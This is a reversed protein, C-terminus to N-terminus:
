PLPRMTKVRFFRQTAPSQTINTKTTSTGADPVFFGLGSDTWNLPLRIDTNVEIAYLRGSSSTFTINSNSGDPNSSYATILFRDTALTPNTGQVYEQLDSMGDGDSDTTGAHSLNGFYQFEFADAMGDADTDAGMLIHDTQVKGFGSNLNIWGCNASYAYGSLSGNVLDVRPNGVAEFNIWGINAGYAYGRLIGYGPQFPDVGYNVGFDAASVNSYQKNNAPTGSGLNIWGVNAGYIYGSCVYEEIRVGETNTADFDPRWNTWGINAGWAYANTANITSTAQSSLPCLVSFLIFASSLPCLVSPLVLVLRTTKV